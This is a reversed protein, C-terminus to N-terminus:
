SQTITVSLIRHTVNPPVGSQSGDANIKQVVDMGSSVHGFLSYGPNSYPGALVFFQSGNTDKGANAMAVDGATYGGAPQDNENAFTYGPGDQVNGVPSNKQSPSGTQNMFQPIVRMFAMCDFFKQNSLFVFSNVTTPARKADLTITFTGLDTKVAATYTKSTDISM